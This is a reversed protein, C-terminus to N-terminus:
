RRTPEIERRVAAILGPEAGNQAALDIFRRAEDHRGAAALGQALHLM